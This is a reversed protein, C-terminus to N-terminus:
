VWKDAYNYQKLVQLTTSQQVQKLKAKLVNADWKFGNPMKPPPKVESLVYSVSVVNPWTYRDTTLKYDCDERLWSGESTGVIKGVVVVTQGDYQSLNKLTECVTVVPVDASSKTSDQGFAGGILMAIIALVIRIGAAAIGTRTTAKM